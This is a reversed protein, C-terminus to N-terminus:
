ASTRMTKLTERTKSNLKMALAGYRELATPGPLVVPDPTWALQSSTSRGCNICTDRGSWVPMEKTDLYWQDCSCHVARDGDLIREHTIACFVPDGEDRFPAPVVPTLMSFHLKGFWLAGGISIEDRERLSTASFAPIGNLYLRTAGETHSCIMLCQPPVGEGGPTPLLRAVAEEDTPDDAVAPLGEKMVIAVPSRLETRAWEVQKKGERSTIEPTYIHM